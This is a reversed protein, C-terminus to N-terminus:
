NRVPALSDLAADSQQAAALELAVVDDLAALVVQRISQQALRYCDPERTAAADLAFLAAFLRGQLLLERAEGFCASAVPDIIRDPAAAALARARAEGEEFGLVVLTLLQQLRHMARDGAEEILLVESM